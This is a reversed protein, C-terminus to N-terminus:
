RLARETIWRQALREYESAVVLHRNPLRGNELLTGPVAAVVHVPDLGMDVLEVVDAELEAVWAAGAFGVDRSGLALM